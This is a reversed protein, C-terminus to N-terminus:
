HLGTLVRTDAKQANVKIMLEEKSQYLHIIMGLLVRKIGPGESSLNLNM